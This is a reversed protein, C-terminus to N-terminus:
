PLDKGQPLYAGVLRAVLIALYLQGFVAQVWTATAGFATVPVVDGYGLTTLTIFSFYTFPIIAGQSRLLVEMGRFADPNLFEEYGYLYAFAFGVLLYINVSGFILDITVSQSRLLLDYLLLAAIWFFLICTAMLRISELWYYEGFILGIHGAISFTGLVLAFVIHRPKKSITRVATLIVPLMLVSLVWEFKGLSLIFPTILIIALFSLLLNRHVHKEFHAQTNKDMQM